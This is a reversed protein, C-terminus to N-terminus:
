GGLEEEILAKMTEFDRYGVIMKGNVFITPTAKVGYSLADKVDKEVEERYKGSELCAKFKGVDLGLESAYDYFKSENRMWEGQREFLIYHYEWYKGQEAACDAAEAAKYAIEGHVPFDRFVIKVRDGFTEHIRREVELAFKACYPCSYDSFEVIVVKANEGGIYPDDDTSVKIRESKLKLVCSSSNLVLLDGVLIFDQEGKKVSGNYFEISLSYAEGIKEYGGIKAAYRSGMERLRDNLMKEISAVDLTKSSMAFSLAYGLILGVVVGVALAPIQKM